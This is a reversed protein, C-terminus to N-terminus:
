DAVMRSSAADDSAPSGRACIESTPPVLWALLLAAFAACSTRKGPVIMAWPPATVILELLVQSPGCASTSREPVRMALERKPSGPPGAVLPVNSDPPVKVISEAEDAEVISLGPSADETM